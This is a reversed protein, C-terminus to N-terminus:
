FHPVWGRSFRKMTRICSELALVAFQQNTRYLQLSKVASNMDLYCLASPPPSKLSVNSKLQDVSQRLIDRTIETHKEVHTLSRCGIPYVSCPVLLSSPGSHTTIALKKTQSSYIMVIECVEWNILILIRNSWGKKTWLTTKSLKWTGSVWVFWCRDVGGGWASPVHCSRHHRWSTPPFLPRHSRLWLFALSSLKSCPPHNDPHAPLSALTSVLCDHTLKLQCLYSPRTTHYPLIILQSRQRM